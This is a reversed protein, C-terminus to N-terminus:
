ETGYNKLHANDVCTKTSESSVPRAYPKATKMPGAGGGVGTLRPSQSMAEIATVRANLATIQAGISEAFKSLMAEFKATLMESLKEGFQQSPEADGKGTKKPPKVASTTTDEAKRKPPPSQSESAEMEDGSSDEALPVHAFSLNNAEGPNPPLTKSKATSQTVHAAKSTNDRGKLRELEAKLKTNESVVMELMQKIKTMEAQQQDYAQKESAKNDAQKNSNQTASSHSVMSVWSVKKGGPTQHRGGRSPSRSQQRAQTSPSRHRSKSRSRHQAQQGADDIKSERIPLRPFSSSRDRTGGGKEGGGGGSRGPLSTM